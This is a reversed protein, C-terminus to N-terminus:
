TSTATGPLTAVRRQDTQKQGNRLWQVVAKAAMPRSFHYGQLEDCGLQMLQEAQQAQEVGEAVVSLGLTHGLVVIAQVIAMDAPDELMDRVFSQDIKLKDIPFRKLYALSSYGTGFDDISLQLGLMKIAALKEIAAAADAMLHSETIELELRTPDCGHKEVCQRVLKVLDPDALQAASLNISMVLPGVDERQWAAWQRCAEDMVWRGIPHILGSEEAVPIFRAPSVPGLEASHWRLLAELGVV